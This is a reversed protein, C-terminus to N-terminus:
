EGKLKRTTCVLKGGVLIDRGPSRLIGKITAVLAGVTVNLLATAILQPVTSSPLLQSIIEYILRDFSFTGSLVVLSLYLWKFTGIISGGFVYMSSFMVPNTIAAFFYKVAGEEYGMIKGGNIKVRESGWMGELNEIFARSQM